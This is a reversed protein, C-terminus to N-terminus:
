VNAALDTYVDKNQMKSRNLCKAAAFGFTLGLLVVFIFLGSSKSSPTSGLGSELVLGPSDPFQMSQDPKDPTDPSDMKVSGPKNPAYMSDHKDPTDPSDVFGQMALADMTDHKDPTDPSDLFGQMEPADMKDPKDPTDPSDMNVTAIGPLNGECSPAFCADTYFTIWVGANADCQFVQSAFCKGCCCEQGYECRASDTCPANIDPMDAPCISPNDTKPMPIAAAPQDTLALVTALAPNTEKIQKELTQQFLLPNNLPMLKSGESKATFDIKTLFDDETIEVDVLNQPIGLALAFQRQLQFSSAEVANVDWPGQLIFSGSRIDYGMGKALDDATSKINERLVSEFAPSNVYKKQAPTLFASVKMETDMGMPRIVVSQVASKDVRLTDAFIETFEELYKQVLSMDWAGKLSWTTLEPQAFVDLTTGRPLCGKLTCM